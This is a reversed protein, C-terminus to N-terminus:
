FIFSTWKVTMRMQLLWSEETMCLIVRSKCEVWKHLPIVIKEPILKTSLVGDAVLLLFVDFKV